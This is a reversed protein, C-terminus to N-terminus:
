IDFNNFNLIKNGSVLHQAITFFSPYFYLDSDQLVIFYNKWSRHRSKSTRNDYLKKRKLVGFCKADSSFKSDNQDFSNLLKKRTSKKGTKSFDTGFANLSAPIPHSRATSALPSQFNFLNISSRHSSFESHITGSGSTSMSQFPRLSFSHM